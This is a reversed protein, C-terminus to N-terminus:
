VIGEGLKKGAIIHFHMHMVTQGANEGCNNIVRFGEKAFGEKKAIKNIAEYIKSIINDNEEVDLVNDYHKKHVVLIHIPAQPNLDKFATVNEDEYVVEQSVDSEQIKRTGGGSDSEDTNSTKETKNYVPVMQTSETYTLMVDAKGVGNIKSLINELKSELTTENETDNNNKALQKTNSETSTDDEKKKDGNWIVNISIVTIILIVLLFVLNEIKKKNNGNGTLLGNIKEKLM